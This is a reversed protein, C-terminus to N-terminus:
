EIGEVNESLYSFDRETLSTCDKHSWQKCDHCQISQEDEGVGVECKLCIFFKSRSKESTTRREKHKEEKSGERAKERENGGRASNKRGGARSGTGSM